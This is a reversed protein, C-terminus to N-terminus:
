QLDKVAIHRFGQMRASAGAVDAGGSLLAVGYM